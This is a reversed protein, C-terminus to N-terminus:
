RLSFHVTVTMLIAVPKGDLLTPEYQWQSIAALAATSLVPHPGRLVTADAVCGTSTITAEALVVGQIGAKEMSSPYHPGVNRLKRPARVKGDGARVEKAPGLLDIRPCEADEPRFGMVVLDTREPAIPATGAAVDLAALVRAAQACFGAGLGMPTSVERVQGTPKFAIQVAIFQDRALRCGTLEGLEPGLRSTLPRVMRIVVDSAPVTPVATGRYPVGTTDPGWHKRDALLTIRARLATEETSGLHRLWADRWNDLPFWAPDLAAITPGLPVPAAGPQESRRVLEFTLALFPDDAPVNARLHALASVAEAPLASSLQRHLLLRVAARRTGPSGELGLAVVPWPLPANAIELRGILALYAPELAPAAGLPALAAVVADPQSASLRELPEGAHAGIAALRPLVDAPRTRAVVGVWADAGAALRGVAKFVAEDGGPGAILAIARIMEAAPVTQSESDLASRLAPLLREHRTTFAVRAAVARVEPNADALAKTLREVVASESTYPLLLAIAAPTFPRALAEQLLRVRDDPAQADVHAAAALCAAVAFAAAYRDRPRM